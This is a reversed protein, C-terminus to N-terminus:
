NEIVVVTITATDSGTLTVTLTTDTIDLTKVSEAGTIATVYWGLIQAGATVTATGSTSATIQVTEPVYKLGNKTVYNAPVAPLDTDEIVAWEPADGNTGTGTQSLFKKTATTNPALQTTTNEAANYPISGKLTTANGGVLSTARDALEARDVFGDQDDDAGAKGQLVWASGSWRFVGGTALDTRLEGAKTGDPFDSSSPTGVGVEVWASGNWIYNKLDAPDQRVEGVKLNGTPLSM